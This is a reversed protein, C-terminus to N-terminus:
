AGDAPGNSTANNATPHTATKIRENLEERLERGAKPAFLLGLIGGVLAGAAFIGLAPLINDSQTRRSEVGFRELLREIHPFSDMRM